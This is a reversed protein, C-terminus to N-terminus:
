AIHKRKLKEKTPNKVYLFILQSIDELVHSFDSFLTNEALKLSKLILYKLNSSHLLAKLRLILEHKSYYFLLLKKM